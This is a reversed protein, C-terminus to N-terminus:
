KGTTIMIRATGDAESSMEVQAGWREAVFRLPVHTRGPPLSVATTDM